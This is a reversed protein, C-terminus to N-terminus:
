AMMIAHDGRLKAVGMSESLKKAEAAELGQLEVQELEGADFDEDSLEKEIRNQVNRAVQEHYLGKLAILVVLGFSKNTSPCTPLM